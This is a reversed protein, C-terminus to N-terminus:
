DKPHWEEKFENLCWVIGLNLDTLTLRKLLFYKGFDGVDGVYRHQM